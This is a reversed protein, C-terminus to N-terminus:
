FRLDMTFEIDLETNIRKNQSEIFQDVSPNNYAATLKEIYGLAENRNVLNLDSSNKLLFGKEGDNM